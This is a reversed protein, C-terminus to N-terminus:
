RGPRLGPWERQAQSLADLAQKNVEEPGDVAFGFKVSIVCAARYSVVPEILFIGQSQGGIASNIGSAFFQIVSQFQEPDEPLAIRHVGQDGDTTKVTITMTVAM